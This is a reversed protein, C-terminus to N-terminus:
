FIIHIKTIVYKVLIFLLFLKFIILYKYNLENIGENISLWGWNIKDLNKELLHMANPNKSLYKWNIKNPNKELLKMTSNIWLQKDFM